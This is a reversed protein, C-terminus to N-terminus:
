VYGKSHKTYEVTDIQQFYKIFSHQIRNFIKEIGTSITMQNKDKMRNSHHLMYQVM